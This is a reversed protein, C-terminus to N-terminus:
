IPPRSKRGVFLLNYTFKRDLLNRKDGAPGLNKVARNRFVKERLKDFLDPGDRRFMWKYFSKFNEGIWYFFDEELSGITRLELIEIGSKKGFFKLEAVSFPKEYFTAPLLNFLKRLGFAIRYFVGFRNPVTFFLLGNKKLLRSMSAFAEFRNVGSFHELTGFSCAVDYKEFAREDLDLLNGLMKEPRLEVMKHVMGASKLVTSNYDLLTIREGLFGLALSFKGFGSGAEIIELPSKEGLYNKWFMYRQFVFSDINSELWAIVTEKPPPLIDWQRLM